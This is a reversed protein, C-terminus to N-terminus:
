QIMHWHYPLLKEIDLVSWRILFLLHKQLSNSPITFPANLLIQAQTNWAQLFTNASTNASLFFSTLVGHGWHPGNVVATGYIIRKGYDSIKRQILLHLYCHEGNSWNMETENKNFVLM